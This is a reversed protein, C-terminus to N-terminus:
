NIKLFINMGIPDIDKLGKSSILFEEDMNIGLISRFGSNVDYNSVDCKLIASWSIGCDRSVYIGCKLDENDQAEISTIAMLTESNGYMGWCTHPLNYIRKTTSVIDNLKATCIESIANIADSGWIIEDYGIPLLNLTRYRQNSVGNIETWNSANSSTWWRVQSDTDGSTLYWMNNHKNYNVSHFHRIETPALKNLVVTWTKGNDSSKFVRYEENTVGYEGFVITNNYSDIGHYFPPKIKGFLNTDSKEITDSYIDKYYINGQLDFLIYSSKSIHARIFQNKKNELTYLITWTRGGDISQYLSSELASLVINRKSALLRYDTLRIDLGRKVSPINIEIGEFVIVDIPSFYTELTLKKIKGKISLVQLPELDLSNDDENIRFKLKCYPDKNAISIIETPITILHVQPTGLVVKYKTSIYNEYSDTNKIIEGNNQSKSIIIIM